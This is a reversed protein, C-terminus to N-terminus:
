RANGAFTAMVNQLLEIAEKRPRQFANRGMISGFAGGIALEKVEALLADTGKADGGSFIVIRRGNFSSEIVHRIRDSLKEVRINKEKYVKAADAQEIHATPPKVKIIHAGLQAAIQAAYAIVDIATEGDKSIGEGRAYSWIVVVLGAKKAEQAAKMIEEYQDNRKTSGPYITFGIGVCGLRLADEVGSTLASIPDGKPKYLSDSNNIKLILPIEGAFDRAGAELMGLPAAYANCGSEIALQFHYHPDYADPNMGFSRAPGHEFGQDVPLIVLKGTGALKGTNLMRALNTLVGPNDSGYWSLIERVRPTM